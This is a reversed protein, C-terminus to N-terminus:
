LLSQHPCELRSHHQHKSKNLYTENTHSLVYRGNRYINVEIMEGKEDFWYAEGDPKKNVKRCFLRVKGNPHFWVMVEKSDDGFQEQLYMPNDNFCNLSIDLDKLKFWCNVKKAEEIEEKRSEFIKSYRDHIIDHISKNNKM